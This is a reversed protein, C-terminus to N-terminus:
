LPGDDDALARHGHAGIALHRFPDPGPRRRRKMNGRVRFEEFFARGNIVERFGVAHHNAHVTLLRRINQLLQERHIEIRHLAILDEYARKHESIEFLLVGGGICAIVTFVSLAIIIKRKMTTGPGTARM